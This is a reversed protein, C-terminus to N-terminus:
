DFDLETHTNIAWPQADVALTYHVVEELLNTSM